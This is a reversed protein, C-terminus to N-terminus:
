AWTAELIQIAHQALCAEEPTRASRRVKRWGDEVHAYSLFGQSPRVRESFDVYEEACRVAPAGPLPEFRLGVMTEGPDGGCFHVVHADVPTEDGNSDRLVFNHAFLASRANGGVGCHLPALVALRELVDQRYARDLHQLPNRAPLLLDARTPPVFVLEARRFTSPSLCLVTAASLALALCTWQLDTSPLWRGWRMGGKAHNSARWQRRARKCQRLCM